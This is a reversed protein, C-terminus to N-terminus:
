IRKWAKIDHDSPYMLMQVGPLELFLTLFFWKWERVVYVNPKVHNQIGLGGKLGTVPVIISTLHQGAIKEM